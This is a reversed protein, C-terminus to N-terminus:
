RRRLRSLRYAGGRAVRAGSAGFAGWAQDQNSVSDVPGFSILRMLMFPMAISICIGALGAAFQQASDSHNFVTASLVIVAASFPKALFLGILLSAWRGFWGKTFDSSLASIAWGAFSALIVIGLSRLSMVVSLIQSLFWIIGAMLLPLIKVLVTIGDLSGMHQWVSYTGEVGVFEGGVIQVGFIRMFVNASETNGAALIYATVEDVAASILQILVVSIYTLPIGFIAGLIGRLVGVGSARLASIAIQISAMIANFVVVIPLWTTLLGLSSSSGVVGAWWSDTINSATFAGTLNNNAEVFIEGIVEDWDEASGLILDFFSM